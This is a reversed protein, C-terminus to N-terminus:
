TRLPDDTQGAGQGGDLEDGAEIYLGRAESAPGRREGLAAVELTRLRGNVGITLGDGRRVLTGPKDLSKSQGARSVRVAGDEVARAAQARTKFFRARWLWVDIRVV